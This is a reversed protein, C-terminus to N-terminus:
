TGLYIPLFFIWIVGLYHLCFTGVTCYALTSICFHLFAFLFVVLALFPLSDSCFLSSFLAWSMRMDKLGDMWGHWGMWGDLTFFIRKRKETL